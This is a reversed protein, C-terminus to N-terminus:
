QDINRKIRVGKGPQTPNGAQGRFADVQGSHAHIRNIGPGITKQGVVMLL